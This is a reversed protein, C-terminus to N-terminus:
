WEYIFKKVSLIQLGSITACVNLGLVESASALLDRLQLDTQDASHTRSCGPAVCLFGTEFM